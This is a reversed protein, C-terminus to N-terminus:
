NKELVHSVNSIMVVSLEDEGGEDHSSRAWVLLERRRVISGRGLVLGHLVGLVIKCILVVLELTTQLGTVNLKEGETSSNACTEENSGTSNEM